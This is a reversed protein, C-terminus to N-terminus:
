FHTFLYFIVCIVLFLYFIVPYVNTHLSQYKLYYLMLFLVLCSIYCFLYYFTNASLVFIYWVDVYLISVKFLVFIDWM